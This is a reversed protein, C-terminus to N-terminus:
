FFKNQTIQNQLYHIFSVILISFLLSITFVGIVILTRKPKYRKIPTKAIDLVQITPTNKAEQIKAEEFQQTLFTFLTNQIGRERSLRQLQLGLAPLESLVPFLKNQNLRIVKSGFELEDLKKKFNLM